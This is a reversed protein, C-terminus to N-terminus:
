TSPNDTLKLVSSKKSFDPQTEKADKLDMTYTLPVLSGSSGGENNLIRMSKESQFLKKRFEENLKEYKEFLEKGLIEQHDIPKEGKRKPQYYGAKKVEGESQFKEMKKMDAEKLEFFEVVKGILGVPDKFVLSGDCVLVPVKVRSPTTWFDYYGQHLEWFMWIEERIQEKRELLEEQTFKLDHKMGSVMMQVWSFYRPIFDRYILLVKTVPNTFILQIPKVHPFHTKVIKAGDSSGSYSGHDTM